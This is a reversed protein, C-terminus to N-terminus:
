SFIDFDSSFVLAFLNDSNIHWSERIKEKAGPTGTLLDALGTLYLSQGKRLTKPDGIFPIFFPTTGFFGNDKVDAMTKWDRLAGILIHQAKVPEGLHRAAAAQWAPLEPLNGKSFYEVPVEAVKRFLVEADDKKGCRELALAELFMLPVLKSIHWIGSGLSDPFVRGDAFIGAAKEADGDKLTMLGKIVHALMYQEATSYEGGECSIFERSLLIDLARDPMMLQNYAKALEKIIDERSYEHSEILSIKERPDTGMRDMLLVTEHLLEEDDPCEETLAKMIELAEEQRGLHSYYAVALDRRSHVLSSNSFLEAAEKYYRKDYLLCGLLMRAYPDDEDSFADRLIKIELPRVPFTNGIRANRAKKLIEDRGDKGNLRMFYALAYLLIANPDDKKYEYLKTFLDLADGCRGMDMLDSAIDLSTQVPCSNMLGFLDGAGSVTRMLHDLPDKELTREALEDAGKIDGKEKLAMYLVAKALSNKNGRELAELAHKRAKVPDCNRLDLVAIRTLSKQACDNAWAAKFYYDYAEKLSGKAELIRAYTYYAEGSRLRTNFRTLKDIARKVYYEASDLDHRSLEYKAMGLLSPAHSPNRKLAELFYADPKITPDKYQLVHMGALYLEETDKMDAAIPMDTIPEPMKYGDQVKETYSSIVNEGETVTIEVLEPISDVVFSLPKVPSLDCDKILVTGKESSMNIRAGKIVKTSQINLCGNERDIKLALNLDAYDPTGIKTIPYWFQSFNKTEYAEIWSFDPQNDSYSGAMLEAYQGDTDTLANEWSKALQTYGWSWMKKGPSLHHDGIHVVGCRKGHDYGGFFDYDSACAFYSTAPVTNKHWSIDRPPDMNIGNYVGSGAIPYTTRSKLYHYNVYTVDKPFFIQYDKNVPVAANQWFLFSKESSTRNYLSVRTELYTADPRLIVSVTGKTREMPEHESLICEVSGDPNERIIYDVPMSGSPRHHFPWNFEIGGSIWSGLAGILAPKIVHQKYFYDYGTSKDLASFIKGGIEPLIELVVYDNEMVVMDYERDKRESRDTQTVVKNPYPDGSTGQHNRNEAFMPYEIKKADPYTPITVKRVSISAKTM